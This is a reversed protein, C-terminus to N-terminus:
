SSKSGRHGHGAASATVSRRRTREAVEANQLIPTRRSNASFCFHSSNTHTQPPPARSAPSLHRHFATSPPSRCTYAPEGAECLLGSGGSVGIPRAVPRGCRRASAAKIREDAAAATAAVADVKARHSPGKRSRPPEHDPLRKWPVKPPLAGAELGAAAAGGSASPAGPRAASCSVGTGGSQSPLPVLPVALGHASAPPLLTAEPARSCAAAPAPAWATYPATCIPTFRCSLSEDNCPVGAMQSCLSGRQGSM